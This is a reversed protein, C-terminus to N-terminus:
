FISLGSPHITFHLIITTIFFAFPCLANSRLGAKVYERYKRIADHASRKPRFGFSLESFTHDWIRNFIRAVAQQIVRDVVTLFGLLRVGGSKPIEKSRVPM